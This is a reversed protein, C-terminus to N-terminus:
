FRLGMDFRFEIKNELKGEPAYGLDLNIPALPTVFTLGVGYTYHLNNLNLNNDTFTRGADIFTLGTVNDVIKFRYELNAALIANGKFGNENPNNEGEYYAQNYGRVIQNLKYEEVDSLEGQSLGAKVRFAWANDKSAPLYNRSELRYKTFDADGGFGTKEVSLEQRSGKRPTFINDRADRVLKYTISRNDEEKYSFKESDETADKDVLEYYNSQEYNATVYARTDKFLKRGLTLNGGKKNVEKENEDEEQTNYLETELSTDTKFVWPNIYSFEYLNKDFGFEGDLKLKQGMGFLNKRELKIFALWGNKYGGGFFVSNYKEKEEINLVMDVSGNPGSQFSPEINKLYGLNYLERMDSHLRNLDFVEGEELSISKNIVFDKTKENGELYIKNLKVENIDISLTDKSKIKSGAVKSFVYGQEEYYENIRKVGSKLQNIDLIEGTKIALLDRLKNTSIVKNGVFNIKYLVPNEFVQFILNIGNQHNQFHVKINNFYGLNYIGQMDQQLKEQYVSDGIQVKVQSLIESDSILNNGKVEIKTIINNADIALAFSSNIILLSLIILVALTKKYM